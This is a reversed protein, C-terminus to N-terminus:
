DGATAYTRAALVLAAPDNPTRALRADVRAKAEPLKKAAVDLTM